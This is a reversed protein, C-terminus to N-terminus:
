TVRSTPDITTISCTIVSSQLVINIHVCVCVCM